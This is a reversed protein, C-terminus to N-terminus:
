NMILLPSGESLHVILFTIDHESETIPSMWFPHSLMVWVSSHSNVVFCYLWWGLVLAMKVSVFAAIVVSPPSSSNKGTTFHPKLRGSGVLDLTNNQSTKLLSLWLKCIFCWVKLPFAGFSYQKFDKHFSYVGGWGKAYFAKSNDKLHSHNISIFPLIFNLASMESRYFSFIQNRFWLRGIIHNDGGFHAKCTWVQGQWLM